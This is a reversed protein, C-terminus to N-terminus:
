LKWTFDLRTLDDKDAGTDADKTNFTQHFAFRTNKVPVYLFSIGPGRYGHQPLSVNGLGTEHMNGREIDRYDLRVEFSKPTNYDAARYRLSTYLGSPNNDKAYNRSYDALLNLNEAVKTKVGIGRYDFDKPNDSSKENIYSGYITTDKTPKYQLEAFIAEGLEPDAQNKVIQSKGVVADGKGSQASFDGYGITYNLKDQKKIFKVGDIRGTSEALLYQTAGFNQGIRGAEIALGDVNLFDDYHFTANYVNVSTDKEGTAGFKNNNMVVWRSFFYSHDDVPKKMTLRFRQDFNSGKGEDRYRLRADGNFQFDKDSKEKLKDAKAEVQDSRKEQESIKSELIALREKLMNIEAQEPSIEGAAAYGTGMVSAVIAATLLSTIKRKMM